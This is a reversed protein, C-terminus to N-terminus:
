LTGRLTARTRLAGNDYTINLIDLRVDYQVNQYRVTVMDGLDFHIGRICSPTEVLDGTVTIRPRGARLMADAEDQLTTLDSVSGKDVFREIRNFPSAGIRATDAAVRVQRASEQGSGAAIAVTIENTYDEYLEVNEINGRRETFIVPQASSARHDIGRQGVYSRLELQGEVPCVIEVTLYVGATASAEALEQIAEDLAARSAAKSISAAAGVDAQVTLYTSIDTQARDATTTSDRNAASVLAGLNERVFAKIVNDAAGSKNTYSSAASYAIIRRTLLHNAHLATVEFGTHNTRFARALWIAQGDLTPTRGFVSRWVGIRTDRQFLARNTIPPSPLRLKCSAQPSGVALVYQLAAGGQEVAAFNTLSTLHVGTPTGIRVEIM